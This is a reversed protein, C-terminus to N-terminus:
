APPGWRQPQYVVSETELDDEPDPSIGKPVHGFGQEEAERVMKARAEKFVRLNEADDLRDQEVKAEFAERTLGSQLIPEMQVMKSNLREWAENDDQENRELVLTCYAELVEPNPNPYKGTRRIADV